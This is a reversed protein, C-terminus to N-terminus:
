SDEEGAIERLVGELMEASAEWTYHRLVFRRGTRDPTGDREARRLAAVLADAFEAADDAVAVPPHEGDQTWLGAAALTSSVVPVEMALAELVKNQMGAGFRIPAAFVAADDLYPRVDDVFGTVTVGEARGAEALEPVPDRGVITLTSEPVSERVLPLISRVLFLAADVNPRYDMAGTFVISTSGLEPTKRTWFELDVGNPVITTRQDHGLALDDRDRGSIFLSRDARRAMAREARQIQSRELALFQRRIPGAYEMSREIRVSTADCLDAALPLHYIGALALMTRKGSVVVDFPEAAALAAAADGMRVVAPDRQVLSRLRRGAKAFLGGGRNATPFTLVQKTFPTLAEAHEPEFRRDVLSLLTVEHRESLKRVLHYHRLHGSTLPFPFGGTLYLIRM